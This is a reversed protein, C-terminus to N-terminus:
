LAIGRGSTVDVNFVVGHDEFAAKLCRYQEWGLTTYVLMLYTAAFWPDHSQSNWKAKACVHALEHILVLPKLHGPAMELQGRREDAFYGGVSQNGSPLGFVEVFAIMPYEEGWWQMQLLSDIWAQAQPLTMAEGPEVVREATYLLDQQCAKM